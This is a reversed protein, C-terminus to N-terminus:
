PYYVYETIISTHRHQTITNNIVASNLNRSAPLMVAIITLLNKSIAPTVCRAADTERMDYSSKLLNKIYM